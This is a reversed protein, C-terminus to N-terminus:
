TFQTRCPRTSLVVSVPNSLVFTILSLVSFTTSVWPFNGIYLSLKRLSNGGTQSKAATSKDKEKAATDKAAVVNNTVKKDQDVSGTLVADFLENAEAIRDLDQAPYFFLMLIM